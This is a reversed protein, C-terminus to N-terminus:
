APATTTVEACCGGPGFGTTGRGVAMERSSSGALDLTAHGYGVVALRVLLRRRHADGGGRDPNVTARSLNDRRVMM